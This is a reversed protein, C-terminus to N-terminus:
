RGGEEIVFARTVIIIRRFFLLLLTMIFVGVGFGILVYKQSETLAFPTVPNSIAPLVIVTRLLKKVSKKVGLLITFVLWLGFILGLGLVVLAVAKRHRAYWEKLQSWVDGFPDVGLTSNSFQTGKTDAYNQESKKEVDNNSTDWTYTITKSTDVTEVFDRTQGNYTLYIHVKGPAVKGAAKGESNTDQEFYLKGNGTGYGGTLAEYVKIHVGQLPQQNQDVVKIVLIPAQEVSNGKFIFVFSDTFTENAKLKYYREEYHTSDYYVRLKYRTNATLSFSASGSTDTLKEEVKTGNSFYLVCKANSLPDVHQRGLPWDYWVKYVKINLVANGTTGGSENNETEAANLEVLSLNSAYIIYRAGAPVTFNKSGAVGSVILELQPPVVHIFEYVTNSTFSYSDTAGWYTYNLSVPVADAVFWVRTANLVKERWTGVDTLGTCTLKVIGGSTVGLDFPEGATNSSYIQETSTAVTSGSEVNLLYWTGNLTYLIYEGAAVNLFVVGSGGYTSWTVNFMGASAMYACVYDPPPNTGYPTNAIDAVTASARTDNFYVIITNPTPPAAFVNAVLIVMIILTVDVAVFALSRTWATGRDM